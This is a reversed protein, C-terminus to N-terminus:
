ERVINLITRHSIDYKKALAHCGYGRVGPRYEARIAARIDDSVRPIRKLERVVGGAKQYTKGLQIGGIATDSVNFKEALQVLTLDLPNLRIYLVQENTLKTQPCEEGQLKIKKRVTGGVNKYTKGLQILTIASPTVNFKKALEGGSLKEPNNRVYRVQENTLKADVRKEGRLPTLLGTDCAHQTNERATVWELNSVHNNLPHGDKHNIQPKKELNPIFAQAVLRHIRFSKQAGDKCLFVQLYGRNSHPTLIKPKGRSVSKVRGFSSVEYKDYGPIPLWEESPLDVLTLPYFKMLAKYALKIEEIKM